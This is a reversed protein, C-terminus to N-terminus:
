DMPLPPERWRRPGFVYAAWAAVAVAAAVTAPFPWFVYGAALAGAVVAPGASMVARYWPPRALWRAHHGTPSAGLWGHDACGHAVTLGAALIVLALAWGTV